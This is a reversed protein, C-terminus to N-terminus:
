KTILIVPVGKNRAITMMHLTGKSSHINSHFAIILDPNEKLMQQNRIPGAKRGLSWDAPFPIVTLGLQKAVHDAHTDAGPAAGHIIITDKPFGFLANHITGRKDWHRSGCILVKM